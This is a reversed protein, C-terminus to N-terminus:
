VPVPQTSGLARPWRSAWAPLLEPVGAHASPPAWPALPQQVLPFLVCIPSNSTLATGMHHGPRGGPLLALLHLPGTAKRDKPGIVKWFSLSLTCVAGRVSNQARFLFGGAAWRQSLDPSPGAGLGGGRGVPWAATRSGGSGRQVAVLHWAPHKAGPGPELCSLSEARRISRLLLFVSPTKCGPM